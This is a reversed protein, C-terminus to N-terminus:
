EITNVRSYYGRRSSVQMQPISVKVQISHWKAPGDRDAPSYGILYQERIVRSIAEAAAPAEGFTRIRRNLGGSRDALTRLFALGAQAETLEIPKKFGSLGDIGITYIQVDAEEVLQMLERESYRSHNDMGDSVVLLARCPHTAGRMQRIGLYLTDILATAGGAKAGLLSNQLASFNATFPSINQPRTSVTLLFAEDEPNAAELFSRLATGAAPLQNTMSGSLDFIIGISCPVDENGFSVIPQSVKDELVTFASQGLGNVATGGRNTVHVPVLVLNADARLLVKRELGQVAHRSATPTLEVVQAFIGATALLQLAAM